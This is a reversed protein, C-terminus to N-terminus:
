GPTGAPKPIKKFVPSPSPCPGFTSSNDGPTLTCKKDEVLAPRGREPEHSRAHGRRDPPRRIRRHRGPRCRSVHRRGRLRAPQHDPAFESGHAAGARPWGSAHRNRERWAVPASGPSIRFRDSGHRCAPDGRFWPGNGPAAPRQPGARGPQNGTAQREAGRRQGYDRRAPRNYLFRVGEQQSNRVERRSGPMNEEDRRYACTVSAAGQRVATRNCDMATDGGGLVVVHKDRADLGSLGHRTLGMNSRASDILYPLARYVGDMADPDFGGHVPDPTGMGLFVTDHRELLEELSVDAGVTTSLVFEVGM